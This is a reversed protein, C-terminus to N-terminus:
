DDSAEVSDLFTLFLRVYVPKLPRDAPVSLRGAAPHRFVAHSTRDHDVDIGLHGAVNKLDEIRWNRPNNRMRELIKRRSAM